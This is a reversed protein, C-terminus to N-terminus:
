AQSPFEWLPTLAATHILDGNFKDSTPTTGAAGSCMHYNPKLENVAKWTAHVSNRSCKILM